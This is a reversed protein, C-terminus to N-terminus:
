PPLPPLLGAAAGLTHAKNATVMSVEEGKRTAQAPSRLPAPGAANLKREAKM